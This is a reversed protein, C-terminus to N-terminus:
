IKMAVIKIESKIGADVNVGIKHSGEKKIPASLELQKAKIDFQLAQLSSIIKEKTIGAFFTGKDDAKENYHLTTGRLKNALIEPAIKPFKRKQDVKKERLKASLINKETAEIAFKKPLLYNRPYRESVEKVDGKRGLTQVHRLLFVKM